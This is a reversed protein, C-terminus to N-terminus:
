SRAHLTQPKESASGQVAVVVSRGDTTRVVEVETGYVERLLDPRLVDAPVGDARIAGRSLVLCRDAHAAFSLDHMVAVVAVGRSVEVRLASFLDVQHRLDLHTTPEDLLLARPEQALARALAVRQREGGSLTGVLREALQLIATREMARHVAQQDQPTLDRWFGVYPLRGLEVVERVSWDFPVEESQSLYAVTRARPPSVRVGGAGPMLLGALLKLLTTKGAGNPGVLAIIEGPRVALTVGALVITRGYCFRVADASLIATV